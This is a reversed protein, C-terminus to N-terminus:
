LCIYYFTFFYWLFSFLTRKARTQSTYNIFFYIGIYSFNHLRNRFVTCTISIKCFVKTESEISYM